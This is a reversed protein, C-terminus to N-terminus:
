SSPTLQRGGALQRRQRRAWRRVRWRTRVRLSIRAGYMARSTLLDVALDLSGECLRYLNDDEAYTDFTRLAHAGSRVSMWDQVSLTRAFLADFDDWAEMAPRDWSRGEKLEGLYVRADMLESIMLKAAGRLEDSESWRTQCRAIVGNLLGGLLVGTLGFIAATV